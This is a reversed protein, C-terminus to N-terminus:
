TIRVREKARETLIRVCDSESNSNCEGFKSRAYFWSDDTTGSKKEEIDIDFSVNFEVTHKTM